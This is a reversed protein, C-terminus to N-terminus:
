PNLPKIRLTILTNGERAQVPGAAVREVEPPGVRNTVRFLM